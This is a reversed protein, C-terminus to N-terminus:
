PPWTYTASTAVDGDLSRARFQVVSGEPASMSKAWSGWSQKTLPVWPGSGVRADVGALWENAFVDAEVWWVNGRVNKFTAEFGSSPPPPPPPPPEGSGGGATPDCPSPNSWGGFAVKCSADSDYVLVAGGRTSSHVPFALELKGDGDLDGAVPARAGGTGWSGTSVSGEKAGTRADLFLLSSSAVTVVENKGDGDWDALIVDDNSWPNNTEVRWLLSGTHSYAFVNAVGLGEWAGPKHGITNWDQLLIERDGDGDLDELVPHTYSMPNGWTPQVRWRMTGDHSRVFLMFHMKEYDERSDATPEAHRAVYVVEKKGDGDLDAANGAVPISGPVVYASAWKEWRTSGTRADLVRVEGGDGFFLIEKTGDGTLDTLLPDANGGTKDRAWKLSGDDEFAYYGRTETQAFIEAKGDGDVDGVAPGGDAGANADYGNMRKCWRKTFSMSTSSTGSSYEFDCVMAASTVVVIDLRGDNDTDAVAPSNIPRVGWGSPYDPRFEALVRAGTASLVYVYQNDNHAVIEAEGDGDFDAVALSPADFGKMFHAENATANSIEFDMSVGALVPAAVLVLSFAVVVARRVM